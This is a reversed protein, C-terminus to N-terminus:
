NLFDKVVQEVIDVNQLNAFYHCDNYIKKYDASRAVWGAGDLMNILIIDERHRIDKYIEGVKDAFKTQGQGTTLSYRNTIIIYRRGNTIFRLNENIGDIHGEEITFGLSVIRHEIERKMRNQYYTAYRSTYTTENKKKFLKTLTDTNTIRNITSNDICFDDLIYQPIQRKYTDTNKGNYFLDCFEYM